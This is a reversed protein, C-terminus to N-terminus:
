VAHEQPGSPPPTQTPAGYVLEMARSLEYRLEKRVDRTVPTPWDLSAHGCDPSSAGEPTHTVSFRLLRARGVSLEYVLTNPGGSDLVVEPEGAHVVRVHDAWVTSMGDTDFQLSNSPHTPRPRWCQDIADWELHDLDDRVRRWVWHTDEIQDPQGCPLLM